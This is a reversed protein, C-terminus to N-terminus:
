VGASERSPFALEEPVPPVEKFHKLFIKVIEPDFQAGSLDKLEKLARDHDFAARYPRNSTMADFADAVAIVRAGLPIDAGALGLPYGTGDFREHHGSVMPLTEKLFAVSALIRASIHPHEQILKYEAPTLRSPKILIQKEIGIKGIDHLYAATSIAQREEVSCDLQGAILESYGAVRSSHGRTYPDKADIAAALAKITNFYSEQLEAFLRASNIVGSAHNALTLVLQLDKKGFAGTQKNILGIVGITKEALSVPAYIADKFEQKQKFGLRAIDGILLLPGGTVGVYDAIEESVISRGSDDELAGLSAKLELHMKEDEGRRDLMIFGSSAETVKVASELIIGLTKDLDLSSSAVKSINYLVTLESLRRELAQAHRDLRATMDSISQALEGLEDARKTIPPAQFSGKKVLATAARLQHIPRLYSHELGFFIIGSLVVLGLGYAWISRAHLARILENRGELNVSLALLGASGDAFVLPSAINLWEYSEVSVTKQSKIARTQWATQERLSGQGGAALLSRSAGPGVAFVAVNEILASTRVLPELVDAHDSRLEGPTHQVVIGEAVGAVLRTNQTHSDRIIETLYSEGAFTLLLFLGAIPIILGFFTKARLGIRLRLLKM